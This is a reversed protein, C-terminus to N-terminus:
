RGPTRARQNPPFRLDVQPRATGRGEARGSCPQASGRPRPAPPAAGQGVKRRTCWSRRAPRRPPGTDWHDLEGQSGAPPQGQPQDLPNASSVRGPVAPSPAPEGVQDLQQGLSTWLPHRRQAARASASGASPAGLRQHPVRQGGRRHQGARSGTVRCATPLCRDTSSRAPQRGASPRVPARTGAPGAGSALVASQSAPRARSHSSRTSRIRARASSWVARSLGASRSSPGSSAATRRGSRMPVGPRRLPRRSPMLPGPRPASPDAARGAPAGGPRTPPGCRHGTPGARVRGRAARRGRGLERDRRHVLDGCRRTWRCGGASTPRREEAGVHRDEEPVATLGRALYLRIAEEGARALRLTSWRTGAAPAAPRGGRGARPRRQAVAAEGPVDLLGAPLEWLWDGVPHRYQRILVVRETTTSRSWASRAPTCSWRAPRPAARDPCRASRLGPRLGM